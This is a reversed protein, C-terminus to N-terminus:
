IYCPQGQQIHPNITNASGAFYSIFPFRNHSFTLFTTMAHTVLIFQIENRLLSITHIVDFLM